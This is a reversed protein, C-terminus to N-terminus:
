LLVPDLCSVAQTSQPCPQSQISNCDGPDPCTLLKKNLRKYTIKTIFCINIIVKIVNINLQRIWINFKIRGFSMKICQHIFKVNKVAFKYKSYFNPNNKYQHHNKYYYWEIIICYCMWYVLTQNPWFELNRFLIRVNWLPTIKFFFIM